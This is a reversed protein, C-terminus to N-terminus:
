LKSLERFDVTYRGVDEDRHESLLARARSELTAAEKKRKEKRLLFAYNELCIAARSYEGEWKAYIGLARQFLPEARMFQGARSYNV